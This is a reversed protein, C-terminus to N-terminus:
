KENKYDRENKVDDFLIIGLSLIIGTLIVGLGLYGILFLVHLM